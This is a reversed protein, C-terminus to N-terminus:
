NKTQVSTLCAARLMMAGRRLHMDMQSSSTVFFGGSTLRFGKTSHGRVHRSYWDMVVFSWAASTSHHCVMIVLSHPPATASHYNVHSVLISPSFGTWIGCHRGYIRCTSGQSQVWHLVLLLGPSGHSQRTWVYICPEDQETIDLAQIISMSPCGTCGLVPDSITILVILQIWTSRTFKQSVTHNM